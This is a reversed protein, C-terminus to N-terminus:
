LRDLSDSGIAVAASINALGEEFKGGVEKDMDMFLCVARGVFNSRGSMTWTVQTTKGEPVFSFVTLNSAEFPETFDLKLRILEAPKSEVITMRGAGVLENGSWAFVAGEGSEVGSFEATAEPDLKAWPSWDQWKRFDNVQEFVVEAPADIRATRSVQFDAPLLAVYVVFVGVLGMLVFLLRKLM